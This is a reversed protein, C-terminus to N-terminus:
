STANVATNVVACCNDVIFFCRNPNMFSHMVLRSKFFAAAAVAAASAWVLPMQVNRVLVRLAAPVVTGYRPDSVGQLLQHHQQRERQQRINLDFDTRDMGSRRSVVWALLYLKGLLLVLVPVLLVLLM